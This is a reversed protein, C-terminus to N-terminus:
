HKRHYAILGVAAKEPIEVSGLAGGSMGEGHFDSGGTVLLGYRDAIDLMETTQEPTNEHYYAEMGALGAKGLRQIMTEPEGTTFPHALVPVGGSRLILTVAEEPTMKTREVYAPGGSEICNHFADEFKEIYGKELMARAIHPRGISTGEGAIEQVRNWDLVIGLEALKEVMRRARIDRSNRFKELETLFAVDNEDIFYGLVHTEGKETDTSLEVGPIFTLDPFDIAAKRAAAIGDVTDHDTLAFYKLGMVAAREVLVQPKYLGDSATSHVHLDVLNMTPNM